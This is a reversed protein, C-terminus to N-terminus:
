HKVFSRNTDFGWVTPLYTAWTVTQIFAIPHAPGRRRESCRGPTNVATKNSSVGQFFLLPVEWSLWRRGGGCRVVAGSGSGGPWTFMLLCSISAAEPTNTSLLSPQRRHTRGSGPKKNQCCLAKMTSVSDSGGAPLQLLVSCPQQPMSSGQLFWCVCWTVHTRVTRHTHNSGRRCTRTHTLQHQTRRMSTEEESEPNKEAGQQNSRNSTRRSTGGAAEMM